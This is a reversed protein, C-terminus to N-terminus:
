GQIIAEEHSTLYRKLELLTAIKAPVVFGEIKWGREGWPGSVWEAWLKYGKSTNSKDVPQIDAIKFTASRPNHDGDLVGFNVGIKLETETSALGPLLVRRILDKM